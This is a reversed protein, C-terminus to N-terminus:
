MYLSHKPSLPRLRHHHVCYYTGVYDEATPATSDGRYGPRAPPFRIHRPIAHDPVRNGAGAFGTSSLISKWEDWQGGPRFLGGHMEKARANALWTEEQVARYPDVYREASTVFIPLKGARRLKEVRRQQKLYNCFPRNAAQTDIRVVPVRKAAAAVTTVEVDRPTAALSLIDSHMPGGRSSRRGNGCPRVGDFFPVNKEVLEIPPLRTLTALGDAATAPLVYRKELHFTPSVARIVVRATTHLVEVALKIPTPAM